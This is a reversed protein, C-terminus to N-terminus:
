FWWVGEIWIKAFGVRVRKGERKEEQVIGRLKWNM